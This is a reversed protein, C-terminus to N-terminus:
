DPPADGQDRRRQRRDMRAVRRAIDLFVLTLQGGVIFFTGALLSSFFLILARAARTIPDDPGPMFPIGIWSTSLVALIALGVGALILVVGFAIELHAVAGTFKYKM